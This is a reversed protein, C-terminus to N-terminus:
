ELHKVILLDLSLLLDAKGTKVDVDIKALENVIRGVEPTPHNMYKKKFKWVLMVFVFEIAQTKIVEHFGKLTIKNLFKWILKPIDFKEVKASRFLKLFTAPLDKDSYIVLTGNIKELSKIIKLGILKIDRIIILKEAGFLSATMNLDNYLIEWNRKKAVNIFQTLRDYSKHSNEGHLIITKM